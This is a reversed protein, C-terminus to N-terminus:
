PSPETIIILSRLQELLSHTVFGDAIVGQDVQFSRVAARTKQGIIGDISTIPYGADRLRQQIEMGEQRSLAREHRPWATVVGSRGAIADALLGVALAYNLSNNYHLLAHFNTTVLFMPGQYGGPSFLMMLDDSNPLSTGDIRRVGRQQWVTSPHTTELMEGWPFSEPVSVEFGWELDSRWGYFILFNATSALADDPKNWLDIRGDNDFDIGFRLLSSPLFQTHGSAGAWSGKIMGNLSTEQEVIKLSAMLERCVLRPRYDIFGLTVLAEFINFNGLVVGFDTEIGWVALLYEPGVGFRSTIRRLLDHHQVQKRQGFRIRDASVVIDLYQWSRRQIEPQNHAYFIVNSNFTVDSLTQELISSDIGQNVAYSSLRDLWENFDDGHPPCEFVSQIRSSTVPDSYGLDPIAVALVFFIAPYVLYRNVIVGITEFLLMM